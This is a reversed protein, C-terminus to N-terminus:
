VIDDACWEYVDNLQDQQFTEANEDLDTPRYRHVLSLMTMNCIASLYTYMFLLLYAIDFLFLPLTIM